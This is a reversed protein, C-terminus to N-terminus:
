QYLSYQYDLCQLDQFFSQDTAIRYAPSINAIVFIGDYLGLLRTLVLLLIIRLLAIVSMKSGPDLDM